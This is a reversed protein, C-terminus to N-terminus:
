GEIKFSIDEIENGDKYLITKHLNRNFLRAIM